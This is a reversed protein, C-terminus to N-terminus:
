IKIGEMFVMPVSLEFGGNKDSFDNLDEELRSFIVSRENEPIISLWSSLWGLKIFHHNLFASGTLFRMEFKDEIIRSIIFGSKTFLEMVSKVTGRHEQQSTLKEAIDHRNLKHLTKEFIMYFEKWHGNLNTTLVLKGGQSLVRYCEAFAKDPNEFNNIGLNSTILDTSGSEFPINEASGEVVETNKIGYNKLKMEARDNANKWIDLGYCRCSDGLREALEILPFGTGSGLDLVTLNHKLEIYRLLLLGFSASWLPLEDFVAVTDPNDQFEYNWFNKM